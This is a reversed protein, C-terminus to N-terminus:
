LLDELLSEIDDELQKQEKQDSFNNCFKEYLVEENFKENVIVKLEEAKAKFEDWKKYMMRLGM